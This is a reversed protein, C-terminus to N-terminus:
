PVRTSDEDCKLEFLQGPPSSVNGLQQSFEEFCTKPKEPLFAIQPTPLRPVGDPRRLRRGLRCLRHALLDPRSSDM